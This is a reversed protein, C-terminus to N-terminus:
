LKQISNNLTLRSWTSDSEIQRIGNDIHLRFFSDGTMVRKKADLMHDIIRNMCKLGFWTDINQLCNLFIIALTIIKHQSNLLILYNIYLSWYLLISMARARFLLSYLNCLILWMDIKDSILFDYFYIRNRKKEFFFFSWRSLFLSCRRAM